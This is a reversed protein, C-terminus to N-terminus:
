TKLLNNQKDINENQSILSDISKEIQPELNQISQKHKTLLPKIQNSTTKFSSQIFSICFCAKVNLTFLFMAFLMKKM